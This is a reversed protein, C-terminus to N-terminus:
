KNKIQKKNNLQYIMDSEKCDWASCWPCPGRDEVRKWLKSLNLGMSKTTNDLCRMREQGRRRKSETKELILNKELSYTKGMLHGFYQLKLNLMQEELSYEPNIEKLVSQKSKRAPRPVRLLRWWCWLEFDDIIQCESTKIIWSECGYMVVPYVMCKVIHVNMPLTIVRSKLVSDPNAM